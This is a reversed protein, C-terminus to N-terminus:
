IGIKIVEKSNPTYCYSFIVLNLLMVRGENDNDIGINNKYHNKRLFHQEQIVKKKQRIGFM